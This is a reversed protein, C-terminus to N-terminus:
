RRALRKAFPGAAKALRDFEGCFYNIDISTYQYIATGNPFNRSLTNNPGLYFGHEGLNYVRGHAIEHRRRSYNLVTDM